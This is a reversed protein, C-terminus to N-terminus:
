AEFTFTTCTLIIDDINLRTLVHSHIITLCIQFCKRVAFKILPSTKIFKLSLHQRAQKTVLSLCKIGQVCVFLAKILVSPLFYNGSLVLFM